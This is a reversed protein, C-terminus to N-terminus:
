KGLLAIGCDRHLGPETLAGGGIRLPALSGPIHMVICEELPRTRRAVPGWEAVLITQWMGGPRPPRRQDNRSQRNAHM